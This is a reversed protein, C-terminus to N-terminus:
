EKEGRGRLEQDVVIVVPQPPPTSRVSNLLRVVEVIIGLLAPVVTPEKLISLM